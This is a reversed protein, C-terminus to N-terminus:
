AHYSGTQHQNQKVCAGAPLKGEISTTLSVPGSIRDWCLKKRLQVGPLKRTSFVAYHRGFLAHGVAGLARRWRPVSILATLPGHGEMVVAAKSVHIEVRSCTRVAYRWGGAEVYPIWENATPDVLASRDEGGRWTYPVPQLMVRGEREVWLPQLAYYRHDCFFPTGYPACEGSGVFAAFTPGDLITIIPGIQRVLIEENSIGPTEPTGFTGNPIMLLLAAAYANYDPNNIYVDWDLKGAENENFVAPAHGDGQQWAAIRALIRSAALAFDGNHFLGSGVAFAYAAAAHGFLTNRSRGYPVLTGSPSILPCLADLGKHLASQLDPDPRAMCELALMACFKAHYTVPAAQGASADNFLGDERQWTLVRRWLVSAKTAQDADGTLQAYISTSAARMAVWNNSVLRRGHFPKRQVLIQRTLDPYAEQVRAALMLLGFTDFESIHPRGLAARTSTRCAKMWDEDGTHLAMLGFALAALGAAYTGTDGHLPDRIRGDAQQNARLWHAIGAGIESATM